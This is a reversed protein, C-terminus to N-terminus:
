PRLTVTQYGVSSSASVSVAGTAPDLRFMGMSVENWGFPYPMTQKPSAVTLTIPLYPSYRVTSEGMRYPKYVARVRVNAARTNDPMMLFDIQFDYAGIRSNAIGDSKTSILTGEAPVDGIITSVVDDIFLDAHTLQVNRDAAAVDNVTKVTFSLADGDREATLLEVVVAATIENGTLVANPPEDGLDDGNNKWGFAALADTTATTGADHDPRDAFWTMTPTSALTLVGEGDADLSLSAEPSRAVFLLKESLNPKTLVQEVAPTAPSVSSKSEADPTSDISSSCGTMLALALVAAAPRFNKMSRLTTSASASFRMKAANPTMVCGLHPSPGNTSGCRRRTSRPEPTSSGPRGGHLSRPTMSTSFRSETSREPIPPRDKKRSPSPTSGLDLERGIAGVEACNVSAETSTGRPEQRRSRTREAPAIRVGM